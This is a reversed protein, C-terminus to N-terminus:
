PKRPQDPVACALGDRIASRCLAIARAADPGRKRLAHRIYIGDILSGLIEALEAAREGGAAPRLAHVLNSRLRATYIQLIRKAGPSSYAHLYFVLWAAITKREFQSPAFSAQIIADARGAPTQARALGAKAESSFERLLHRMTEVVIEDKGGFYHFALAPSMGALRAIDKVPVELTGHAGFMEIAAEILAQKREPGSAPRSM